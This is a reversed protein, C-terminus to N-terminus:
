FGPLNGSAESVERALDVWPTPTCGVVIIDLTALGM